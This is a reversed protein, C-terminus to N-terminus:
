KALQLLMNELGQWTDGEELGKVQSDLEACAILAQGLRHMRIRKSAAHVLIKKSGWLRLTHDTQHSLNGEQWANRIKMLKRIDEAIVWLILTLPEGAVKLASLIQLLREKNKSMWAEGLDFVTFKANGSMSTKLIDFTIQTNQSHSLALREIIQKTALLNGETQTVMVHLAEETISQQQNALRRTIWQPLHNKSISKAEIVMATQRLARLPAIQQQARDLTAFTLLFITDAFKTTSLFNCVEGNKASLKASTFHIDLFQNASFLSLHCVAEKLANIDFQSDAEIYRRDVYGAQHVAQRIQDVAEMVLVVEDGYVLYISSLQKQLSAILESPDLIPM